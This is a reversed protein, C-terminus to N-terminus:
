IGVEEWGAPYTSPAWINDDIISRYVVDNEICCEDKMYGGSTGCPAVYPKAKTPDKTHALGWRDRAEGPRQRNTVSDYPQILTWVQNDDCVVSGSPWNLYQKDPDFDPIDSEKEILATGDLRSAEAQIAIAARLGASRALQLNSEHNEANYSNVGEHMAQKIENM